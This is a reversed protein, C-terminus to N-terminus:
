QLSAASTENILLRRRKDLCSWYILDILSCLLLELILLIEPIIGLINIYEIKTIFGLITGNTDQLANPYFYDTIVGIRIIIWQTVLLSGFILIPNLLKNYKIQSTFGIMIAHGITIALQAAFASIYIM